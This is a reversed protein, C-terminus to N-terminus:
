TNIVQKLIPSPKFGLVNRASITIIEGTQPNRGRRDAKKKVAFTGFGNIKLSDGSELASKMVELFAEMMSECEKRHLGTKDQLNAVIDSKTM